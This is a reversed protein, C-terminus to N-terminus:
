ENNKVMFRVLAVALKWNLANKKLLCYKTLSVQLAITLEALWILSDESSPIVGQPVFYKREHWKIRLVLWGLTPENYFLLM